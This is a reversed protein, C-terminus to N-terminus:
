GPAPRLHRCRPPVPRPFRKRTGASETSATVDASRPTRHDRMHGVAAVKWGAAARRDTRSSTSRSPRSRPPRRGPKSRGLRHTGTCFAYPEFRPARGRRRTEQWVWGPSWLPHPSAGGCIVGATVDPEEQWDGPRRRQHAVAVIRLADDVGRSRSPRTEPPPGVDAPELISGTVLPSRGDARADMPSPELRELSRSRRHGPKGRAGPGQLARSRGAGPDLIRKGGVPGLLRLIARREDRWVQEGLPTEFWASYARAEEPGVRM